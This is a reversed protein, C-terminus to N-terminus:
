QSDISEGRQHIMMAINAVDVPDGKEVHERLLASLFENSCTSKDSWGGRGEEVKKELKNKMVKAFNDVAKRDNWIEASQRKEEEYQKESKSSCDPCGRWCLGNERHCYDHGM